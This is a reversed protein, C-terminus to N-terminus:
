KHCVAEINYGDLELIFAAYYNAHYHPRYGPVGNCKGGCKMAAEYFANVENHTKARFAIHSRPSHPTAESIWFDGGPDDGMNEQSGFGISTGFDLCIKYGLTKLVESYFARSLAINSVNIGTHDIM